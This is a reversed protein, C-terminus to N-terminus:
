KSRALARELALLQSVQWAQFTSTAPDITETVPVIPIKHRRAATNLRRVQSTATQRDYVWLKIQRTAIQTTITKLDRASPHTGKSIANLFPQPTVLKLQLASALPGFISDSAGVKTGRFRRRIGAIENHYASLGVRDFFFTSSKFATADRPDLQQYARSVAAVVRAVTSPSYWIHPNGGSKVHVLRAVDIVIRDKVPNAALLKTAWADYGAGNVIVLKAGALMRADLATPKFDHPDAAANSVISTVQARSGGIQSAISGWTNEAAVVRLASSSTRASAASFAWATGTVSLLLTAALVFPLTRRTMTM